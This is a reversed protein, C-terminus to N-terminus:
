SSSLELERRSLTASVVASNIAHALDLLLPLGCVREAGIDLCAKVQQQCATSAAKSAASM